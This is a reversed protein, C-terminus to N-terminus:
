RDPVGAIVHGALKRPFLVLDVSRKTCKRTFDNLLPESRTMLGVYRM